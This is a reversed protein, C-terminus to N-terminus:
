AESTEPKSEAEAPTVEVDMSAAVVEDGKEGAEAGPTADDMKVDAEDLAANGPDTTEVPAAPPETSPDQEQEIDKKISEVEGNTAPVTTETGELLATWKQLL